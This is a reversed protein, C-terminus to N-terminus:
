KLIRSLIDVSDAICKECVDKFVNEEVAKKHDSPSDLEYKILERCITTGHLDRFESDFKRIMSYAKETRESNSSYKNGCYLSIAMFSGTVAGCKEQMHGMGGGFGSSVKELITIDTDIVGAMSCLVAQSCNFGSRFREIAEKKLMKEKMSFLIQNPYLDLSITAPM